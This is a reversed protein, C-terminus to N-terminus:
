NLYEWKLLHMGLKGRKIALKKEEEVCELITKQIKRVSPIVGGKRSKFVIYKLIIILSNVFKIRASNGSLGLFVDRSELTKIEELGYYQVAIQWIQKVKSCKFFM